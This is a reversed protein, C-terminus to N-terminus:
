NGALGFLRAANRYALKEAVPTPLQALWDRIEATVTGFRQWRPPWHTDVGILVRDAYDIFFDRWEPRLCGDRDVFRGDRVSTDVYLRPHRMLMPAVAAPRPETGLHAWLVTLAPAQAFVTDVVAADGHILLMSGRAEALAVLEALVSSDRDQAFLHLEGIGRYIGRELWQEVRAPLDSDQMWDRKDAPTEYVSLFPLIREPASRYLASLPGPRGSVVAAQVRQRDLLAIVDAPRLQAADVSSYHLHADILPMDTVRESVSACADALGAASREEAVGSAVAALSLCSLLAGLALRSCDSKFEARHGSVAREAPM